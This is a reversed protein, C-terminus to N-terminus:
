QHLDGRHHAMHVQLATEHRNVRDALQETRADSHTIHDHVTSSLDRVASTVHEIQRLIRLLGRAIQVLVGVVPLLAGIASFFFEARSM